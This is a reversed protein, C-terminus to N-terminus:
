RAGEKPSLLGQFLTSLLVQTGQALLARDQFMWAELLGRLAAQLATALIEPDVDRFRGSEVGERLLSALLARQETEYAAIEEAGLAVADRAPGLLLAYPDKLLKLSDITAGVAAAMRVEPPSAPDMASATAARMLDLRWSIIERVLAEKNPFHNYLTARSVGAAAAVDELTTKRYGYRLVVDLGAEMIRNSREERTKM